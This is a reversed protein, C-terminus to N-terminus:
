ISRKQRLLAFFGVAAVAITAPEPVPTAAVVTLGDYIAADNGGFRNFLVTDTHLDPGGNIAWEGVFSDNFFVQAKDTQYNLDMRYKNWAGRTVAINTVVTGIMGNRVMLRDNNYVGMTFREVHPGWFSSVGWVDSKQSGNQVNMFWQISVVPNEPTSIMNTHTLMAGTSGPSNLPKTLTVAQSGSYTTTNQIFGVGFGEALPSWGSANTLTSGNAYDPAEFGSTFTAAFSNASLSVILGAIYLPRTNLM